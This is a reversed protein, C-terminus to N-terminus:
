GRAEAVAAPDRVDAVHSGVLGADGTIVVLRSM